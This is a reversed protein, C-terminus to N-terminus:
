QKKERLYSEIRGAVWEGTRERRVRSQESAPCRELVVPFTHKLHRQSVGIGLRSHQHGVREDAREESEVMQQNPAELPSPLLRHHHIDSPFPVGEYHLFHM